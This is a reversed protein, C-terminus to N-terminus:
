QKLSLGGYARDFVIFIGMPYQQCKRNCPLLSGIKLFITKFFEYHSIDKSLCHLDNNLTFRVGELLFDQFIVM